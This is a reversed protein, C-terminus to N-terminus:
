DFYRRKKEKIKLNVMVTMNQQGCQKHHEKQFYVYQQHQDLLIKCAQVWQIVHIYIFAPQLLEVSSTHTQKNNHIYKGIRFLMEKLKYINKMGNAQFRLACLKKNMCYHKANQVSFFIKGMKWFQTTVCEKFYSEM